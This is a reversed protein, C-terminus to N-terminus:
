ATRVTGYLVCTCLLADHLVTRHAAGYGNNENRKTKRQVYM